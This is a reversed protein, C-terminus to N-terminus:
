ARLIAKISRTEPRVGHWIAFADAAQEILMGLGDVNIRAGRRDAWRMFATPESAYQLDYCAAEANLLDDPLWPVKGQLGASTAHIVVDARFGKLSYYTCPQINGATSFDAALEEPGYPTRNALILTKPNASLLPAIVGRSAGGTGLLTIVRGALSLGLNVELDRLLGSGDTNAGCLQGSENCWLTNVAKAAKAADTLCEALEFASRKHPVTVNLGAGGEAFFNQVVTKFKAPSCQIKEYHLDISEAQGFAQHISPSLSHEIPDGIVGFKKM